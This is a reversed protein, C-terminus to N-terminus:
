KFVKKFDKMLQKIVDDQLDMLNADIIYNNEEIIQMKSKVVECDTCKFFINDTDEKKDDSNNDILSFQDNGCVSCKLSINMEIDKM